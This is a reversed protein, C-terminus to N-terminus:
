VRTTNYETELRSLSGILCFRQGDRDHRTLRHSTTPVGELDDDGGGDSGDADDQSYSHKMVLINRRGTPPGLVRIPQGQVDAPLAPDGRASLNARSGRLSSSQSGCHHDHVCKSSSWRLRHYNELDEALDALDAPTPPGPPGPTAAASASRLTCLEYHPPEFVEHFMTPDFDERRVIYKKRPQKIQVVVSVILLIFVIACTVGIIALNTNNLNDLINAKRKEKCHNEDWPYVCNQIGNCVLTHNICMNSHCFFTDSECPPEQFTTFLIRFKSKRSGEDAWMRVVGLASVLMVDNAVTSCFKNKLDEVSSSGDYVAVFNRKCENSNHMEYELFRLYIKSGPPARIVWKCDVAETLLAKGEKSIQVSEVIGQPGDLEFECFPLPKPNGLDKFDPDPTFNYRASFGIAELEGDAVFKIWLYRGSSRVYLPSEQGCYRGIIPSFGFPGDRVEIHDFKCEWSPEISYKEDFYLDICQKPAAELIYICEREPPYKEPYNPSTFVGGEPEKVWTGCQGAPQVGSNNTVATKKTAGSLGLVLLSAIVHLLRRGHVM